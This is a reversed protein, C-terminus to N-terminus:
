YSPVKEVVVDRHIPAMQLSVPPTPIFSETEESHQIKANAKREAEQKEYEWEVRLLNWIARSHHISDPLFHSVHSSALQIVLANSHRFRM